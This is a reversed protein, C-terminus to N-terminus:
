NYSLEFGADVVVETPQEKPEEEKPEQMYCLPVRGQIQEWWDEPCGKEILWEIRLAAGEPTNDLKQWFASFCWDWKSDPSLGTYDESWYLFQQNYVAEKSHKEFLKKDLITCHGIVCGVSNCEPTKSRVNRYNSMDFQEQPITRIYNAMRQLNRVNM